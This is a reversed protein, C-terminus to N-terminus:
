SAENNKKGAFTLAGLSFVDADRSNCFVVLLNIINEKINTEM